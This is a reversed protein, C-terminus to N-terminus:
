LISVYKEEGRMKEMCGEYVLQLDESIKKEEFVMDNGAYLGAYGHVTLFLIRFLKKTKEMSLEAEQSFMQLIPLLAEGDMLKQLELGSFSGSQFLLAFLHKEEAAFRIYNLGIELMPDQGSLRAIYDSHYQDAREYVAQRIEEMTKFHYLVPQTSCGLAKSLSRANLCDAGYNRVIEFAADLIRDRTIRAKPPM